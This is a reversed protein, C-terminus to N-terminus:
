FLRATKRYSGPPMLYYRKFQRTFHSQDAFGTEQAVTGVDYGQALLTRSHVLRLQTQYAHPPLGVVQRFVRALHFPSMNVVGALEQLAVEQAYHAQLYEKTRKVAPYEKGLQPLTGADQSHSLLLPALLHLLTEEQQLRSAPAQSRAALDSMAQSLPPDFLPRNPFHPLGKERQLMETAFQQLWAPDISLHYSTVDKTQCTWTEGPELVVFIGDILQGSLRTNRHQFEITGSQGCVILYEQTFRQNELASIAVKQFLELEKLQWPRWVTVSGKVAEGGTRTELPRM